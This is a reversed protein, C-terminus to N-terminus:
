SIPQMTFRLKISAQTALTLGTDIRRDCTFIKFGALNSTLVTKNTRNAPTKTLEMLPEVGAFVIGLTKAPRHKLTASQNGAGNRLSAFPQVKCQRNKSNDQAQNELPYRTAAM